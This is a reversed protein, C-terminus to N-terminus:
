TFLTLMVLCDPFTLEYLENISKMFTMINSNMFTMNQLIIAIDLFAFIPSAGDVTM